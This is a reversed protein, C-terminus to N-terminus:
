LKACETANKACATDRANCAVNTYTTQHFKTTARANRWTYVHDPAVKDHNARKTFGPANVCHARGPDEALYAAKSGVYAM